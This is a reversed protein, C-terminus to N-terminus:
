LHSVGLVAVLALVQHRHLRTFPHRDGRHVRLAQFGPRRGAVGLRRQEAGHFAGALGHLVVFQAFGHLFFAQARGGGAGGDDLAQNGLFVHQAFAAFQNRGCLGKLQHGQQAAQAHLLQGLGLQGTLPLVLQRLHLEAM